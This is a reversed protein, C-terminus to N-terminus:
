HVRALPEPLNLLRKVMRRAARQRTRLWDTESHIPVAARDNLNPRFVLLLLLPLYWLVYVGGQDAFWFQIGIIVAASLAIVQGLKKPAPWVLTTGVFALYAIFVPLRYAWGWQMGTWFGQTQPNPQEWPQWDSLSRTYQISSPLSDDLWLFTAIVALTAGAALVFTTLFRGSGSNRYFSVWVPLLLAPFYGYGTALGLLLGAVLPMRYAAVAWVVLAATLVHQVQEVHYATYPLLLYFTAAAVGAHADQFHRWGIVALGIVIALHCLIASIREVWFTTTHGAAGRGAMEQKVLDEARRQTEDIAASRKGVTTPLGDPKRVAVAVLCIFLAAGLWALGGLNLNPSLAPRRILALDGLCRALFYASGCLLWLYGLWATSLPAAPAPAPLPCVAASLPAIGDTASVSLSGGAAVLRTALQVPAPVPTPAPPPPEQLLLLGPVLLFLTVVDWNRVSWLRTFKFFLAVALLLAFYFWTTANPLNFEFFISAWASM